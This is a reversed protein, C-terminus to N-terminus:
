PQLGAMFGRVMVQAATSALTHQARRLSVRVSYNGPAAYVHNASYRRQVSTGPEFPECDSEQFSRSGDGWDWELGPCYYEEIDDGGVLEVIVLVRAPSMAVRPSARVDLRPKKPKTEAFAPVALAAALFTVIVPALRM